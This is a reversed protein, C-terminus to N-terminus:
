PSITPTFGEFIFLDFDKECLELEKKSQITWAVSLTHYLRRCIRRSPEKRYKWNYSIFDPRSVCNFLLKELSFLLPNTYGLDRLYNTALQGRTIEPRHHKYWLLIVPNFSEICYDGKYNELISDAIRPLSSNLANSKLEIILPVRGNVVSLAEWLTPIREATRLLCIDKLEAYTMDSIKKDIGCMRKLDWDHFIVAVHDATLQVDMEMGYGMSAAREFALLSNEPIGRMNDYLGRHAYYWNLFHRYDPNKIRPMTLIIYIATLLAIVILLKLIIWLITTM